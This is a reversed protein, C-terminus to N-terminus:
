DGPGGGHLPDLATPHASRAARLRRVENSVEYIGNGIVDAIGMGVVYVIFAIVVLCVAPGLQLTFLMYLAGFVCAVAGAMSAFAVAAWLAIIAVQAAMVCAIWFLELIARCVDILATFPWLALSIFQRM